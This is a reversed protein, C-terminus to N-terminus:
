THIERRRISYDLISPEIHCDRSMLNALLDAATSTCLSARLQWTGSRSIITTVHAVPKERRHGTTQAWATTQWNDKGKKAPIWPPLSQSLHNALAYVYPEYMPAFGGAESRSRAHRCSEHRAPGTQRSSRAANGRALSGAAPARRQPSFRASISLPTARSPSPSNPKNPAPIRSAPSPWRAPTWFPPSRASGPNTTTNRASIPSCRIPSIAKWCNARVLTGLREASRAPSGPRQSLQPPSSTRRRHSAHRRACRAPRYENRPRGFAGYIFPLYGIVAALFGFGFGAEAVVLLRALGSRPVVDGLGLTFFTTGSLYMDTYSSPVSRYSQGGFGRRVADHRLRHGSRHGLRRGSLAALDPRLLRPLVRASQAFFDAAGRDELHGLHVPLLLADPPIKPDRAAAPHHSRLRGVAVVLFIVVGALFVGPVPIM